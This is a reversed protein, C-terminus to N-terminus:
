GPEVVRGCVRCTFNGIVGACTSCGTSNSAGMGSGFLEVKISKRIMELLTTRRAHGIAIFCAKDERMFCCVQKRAAELQKELLAIKDMNEQYHMSPPLEVCEAQLAERVAELADKTQKLETQMSEMLSPELIAKLEETESNYQWMYSPAMMGPEVIDFDKSYATYEIVPSTYDFETKIIVCRGMIKFIMEDNGDWRACADLDIKFKGIRSRLEKDM